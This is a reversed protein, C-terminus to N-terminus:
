GTGQRRSRRRRRRALVVVAVAGVVLLAGGAGALVLAIDSSDDPQIPDVAPQVPPTTPTRPPSTTQARPAPESLDIWGAGAGAVVRDVLAQDAPEATAPYSTRPDFVREAERTKADAGNRLLDGTSRALGPTEDKDDKGGSLEIASNDSGAEFVNAESLLQGDRRASMGHEQWGRLVNNFVHARGYSIRPNRYGTEEFFNHHVTLRIERDAEGTEFAGAQIVQEQRTFRSWSVTVDTAGGIIEVGKDPAGHFTSHDIWILRAGNRMAIADQRVGKDFPGFGLYALIVNPRELLLGKGTLRPKTGRGDITKDAAVRVPSALSIDGSVAFRIRLPGAREAGDRLTGPGADDLSTVVYEPGGAGGTAGAAFGVPRGLDDGAPIQAAVPHAASAMVMLGLVVPAVLGAAARHAASGFKPRNVPGRPARTVLTRRTPRSRTSM